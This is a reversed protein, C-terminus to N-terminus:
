NCNVEDVIGEQPIWNSFRIKLTNCKVNNSKKYIYWCKNIAVLEMVQNPQGLKKIVYAEAKGASHV